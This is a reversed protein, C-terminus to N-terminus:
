FVSKIKQFLFILICWLHISSILNGSTATRLFLFYNIIPNRWYKYNCLNVNFMPVSRALTLLAQDHTPGGGGPRDQPNTLNM